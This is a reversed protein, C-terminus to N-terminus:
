IQCDGLQLKKYKSAQARNQEINGVNRCRLTTLSGSEQQYNHYCFCATAYRPPNPTNFRGGGGFNQLGELITGFEVRNTFVTLFQQIKSALM